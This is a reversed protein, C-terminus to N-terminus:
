GYLSMYARTIDSPLLPTIALGLVGPIFKYRKAVEWMSKQHTKGLVVKKEVFIRLDQM